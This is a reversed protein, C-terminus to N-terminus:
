GKWGAWKHNPITLVLVTVKLLNVQLHWRTNRSIIILHRPFFVLLTIASIGDCLYANLSHYLKLSISFQKFHTSHHFVSSHCRYTTFSLVRLHGSATKAKVKLFNRAYTKTPSSGQSLSLRYLLSNALSPLPFNMADECFGFCSITEM